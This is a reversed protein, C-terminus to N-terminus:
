HKNIISHEYYKRLSYDYQCFAKDAQTDMPYGYLKSQARCTTTLENRPNSMFEKMDFFVDLMFDPLYEKVLTEMDFDFDEPLWTNMKICLKLTDFDKPFSESKDWLPLFEKVAYTNTAATKLLTLIEQNTM